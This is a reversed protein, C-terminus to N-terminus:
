DLAETKKVSVKEEYCSFTDEVAKSDMKATLKSVVPVIILGGVM